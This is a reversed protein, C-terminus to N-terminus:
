GGGKLRALHPLKKGDVERWEIFGDAPILSRRKKFSDRFAGNTAVSEAKANIPRPGAKPDPSWRPVFGWKLLALGRRLGEAKLSVVAVLQAPAVNYRPSLPPVEAVGFHEPIHDPSSVTYRGCM